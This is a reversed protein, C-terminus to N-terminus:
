PNGDAGIIHAWADVEADELQGRLLAAEDESLQRLLLIDGPQHRRLLARLLTLWSPSPDAADLSFNTILYPQGDVWAFPKTM